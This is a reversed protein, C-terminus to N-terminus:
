NTNYRQATLWHIYISCWGKLLIIKNICTIDFQMNYNATYRMSRFIVNSCCEICMKKKASIYSIDYYTHVYKSVYKYVYYIPSFINNLLNNNIFNNISTM